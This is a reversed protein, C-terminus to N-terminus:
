PRRQRRWRRLRDYLTGDPDFVLGGGKHGLGPQDVFMVERVSAEDPRGSDDVAYSVIHSDIDADTYYLFLRDDTPHFAAGLLGRESGNEYESVVDRLDLVLEPAGGTPVLWVEGTQSTLVIAGDPRSAM